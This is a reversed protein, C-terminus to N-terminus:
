YWETVLHRRMWPLRFHRFGWPISNLLVDVGSEEVQLIYNDDQLRLNGMRQLFTQRLGDPSTNQLVAWHGIIAELLEHGEVTIGEPLEEEWTVVESLDLGCLLKPLVLLEEPPLSTTGTALWHLAQVATTRAEPSVFEGSAVLGAQEFFRSIYPFLLVLGANSCAIAHNAAPEQDGATQQLSHKSDETFPAQASKAHKGSLIQQLLAKKQNLKNERSMAVLESLHHYLTGPTEQLQKVLVPYLAASQSPSVELLVELVLNILTATHQTLLRHWCPGTIEKVREQLLVTRLQDTHKLLWTEIEQRTSLLATAPLCGHALYFLWQRAILTLSDKSAARLKIAEALQEKWDVDSLNWPLDSLNITVKEIYVVEDPHDMPALYQDLLEPLRHRAWHKAASQHKGAEEYSTAPLVVSIKHVSATSM